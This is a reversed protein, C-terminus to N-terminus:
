PQWAVRFGVRYSPKRPDPEERSSIELRYIDEPPDAWSGGKAVRDGTKGSVWEAASGAMDFLGLANPKFSGVPLLGASGFCAHGNPSEDGWPYRRRTDGGSAALEWEVETPLRYSRGTERSLADCYSVADDWTVNVVPWTPLPKGLPPGPPRPLKWRRCYAWYEENTVEHRALYVDGKPGGRVLIFEQDRSSPSPPTAPGGVRPSPSPPKMTRGAAPEADRLASILAQDAGAARLVELSPDVPFNIGYKQILSCLRASSVKALLLQVIETERLPGRPPADQPAAQVAPLM